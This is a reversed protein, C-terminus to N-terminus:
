RTEVGPEAPRGRPGRGPLRGGTALWSGALILLLGAVSAAGLDEGLVLVGLAVAVAPNVYTIVSARSPGAEAILRFFLVLGAATCVIGLMLISAVADFSLSEDPPAFVVAPALVLTALGLSATVPGLPDLDALSRDVIVPAIAYGLTAVLILAAGALQASDGAVDGGVLAVVGGLGILLRAVRLGTLPAEATFRLALLAVMLPMTAILIATLSSSVHQEGISILTFPVVIECAAYAVIAARRQSLGRLAGSRLALPLLIAAAIAVRSWALFVPPM